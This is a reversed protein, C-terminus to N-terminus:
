MERRFCFNQVNEVKEIRLNDFPKLFPAGPHNEFMKTTVIEAQSFHKAAKFSKNKSLQLKKM